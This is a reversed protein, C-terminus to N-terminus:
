LLEKLKRKAEEYCLEDNWHDPVHIEVPIDHGLVTVAITKFKLRAPQLTTEPFVPPVEEIQGNVAYLRFLVGPEEGAVDYTVIEAPYAESLQLLISKFKRLDNYFYDYPNLWEQVKEKVRIPACVCKVTYRYSM